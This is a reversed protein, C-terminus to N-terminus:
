NNKDDRNHSHKLSLGQKCGRVVTKGYVQRASEIGEDTQRQGISEITKERNDIVVVSAVHIVGLKEAKFGIEAMGEEYTPARWLVKYSALIM